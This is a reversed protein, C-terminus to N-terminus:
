FLFDLIKHIISVFNNSDNLNIEFSLPDDLRSEILIALDLDSFPEAANFSGFLYVAAIEAYREMLPSTTTM